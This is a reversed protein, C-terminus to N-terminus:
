AMCDLGRKSGGGCITTECSSGDGTVLLSGEFTWTIQLSAVICMNAVKIDLGQVYNYGGM